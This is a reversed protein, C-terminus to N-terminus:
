FKHSGGGFSRGGSGTHVTSTGSGQPPEKPIHHHTVIENVFRDEEHTVDVTGNERFSYKYTGWKLRYKGIIAGATIGAAALAIALAIFFETISVGHPKSENYYTREGTDENYTNQNEVIGDDYCAVAGDLMYEFTGPYDGDSLSAYSDDLIDDIRADNLYNVASGTTVITYERNDMDIVLVIGDDGTAYTNYYEEGYTQSTKGQADETTVALIFWGTKEAASAIESNLAARDSETLLAANDYVYNGDEAQVTVASFLCLFLVALVLQIKKVHKM